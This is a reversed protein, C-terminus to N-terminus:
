RPPRLPCRSNNGKNKDLNEATHGGGEREKRRGGKEGREKVGRLGCKGEDWTNVM